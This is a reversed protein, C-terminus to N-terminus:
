DLINWSKILELGTSTAAADTCHTHALEFDSTSSSIYGVSSRNFSACPAVSSSSFEGPTGALVPGKGLRAQVVPWNRFPQETGREVGAEGSVSPRNPHPICVGRVRPPPVHGLILLMRPQAHLLLPQPGSGALALLICFGFSRLYVEKEVHLRIRGLICLGPVSEM